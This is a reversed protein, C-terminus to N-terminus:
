FMSVQHTHAFLKRLFTPRHLDTIGLQQIKARHFETGYGAHRDFGYEPYRKHAVDYMWRDRTVKALISAASICPVSADGKVVTRVNKYTNSRFYNGDVLIEEVSNLHTELNNLAGHMAYLTAQLINKEEIVSVEAMAVAWYVLPHTTIMQFLREREKAALVKSDSVGQLVLDQPMIVAAAVVPGAFAGRGAEDVGCTLQQELNIMLM